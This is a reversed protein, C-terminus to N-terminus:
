RSETMRLPDRAFQFNASALGRNAIDRKVMKSDATPADPGVVPADNEMRLAQVAGPAKEFDAPVEHVVGSSIKKQSM